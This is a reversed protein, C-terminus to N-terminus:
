AFFNESELDELSDSASRTESKNAVETRCTKTGGLEEVFAARPDCVM